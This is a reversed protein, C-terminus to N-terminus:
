GGLEVRVLRDRQASRDGLHLPHVRMRPDVEVDLAVVPLDHVPRDLRAGGVRHQAAPPLFIQHRAAADGREPPVARLAAFRDGVPAVDREGVARLQEDARRAGARRVVGALLPAISSAMNILDLTMALTTTAVSPTHATDLSGCAAPSAFDAPLITR